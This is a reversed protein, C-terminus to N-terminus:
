QQLVGMVDLQFALDFRRRPSVRGNSTSCRGCSHAPM